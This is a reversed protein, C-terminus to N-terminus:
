YIDLKDGTKLTVVAEKRNQGYGLSRGMRKLKGKRNRMNVKLVKVGFGEEVAKKVLLRNAGPSVEFVYANLVEIGRTTKETLLPRRLIGAAAAPISAPSGTEM